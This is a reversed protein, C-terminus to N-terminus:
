LQGGLNRGSSVVHLAAERSGWALGRAGPPLVLAAPPLVRARRRAVKGRFHFIQATVICKRNRRCCYRTTGSRLAATM